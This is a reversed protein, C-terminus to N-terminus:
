KEAEREELELVPVSQKDDWRVSLITYAKGENEDVLMMGIVERLDVFMNIFKM